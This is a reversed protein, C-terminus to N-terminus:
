WRLDVLGRALGVPQQAVLARGPVLLGGQVGVSAVVDRGIDFSVSVAGDVETGLMGGQPTWASLLGVAGSLHDGVARLRPHLYIADRIGNHTQLPEELHNVYPMVEEFLVLGAQHDPHLAYPRDGIRGMAAGANLEASFWRHAYLVSLVGGGGLGAGPEVAMQLDARVRHLSGRDVWARLEMPVTRVDGGDIQRWHVSTRLLAGETPADWGLVLRVAAAQEGRFLETWRDRVVLDADVEIFLHEVARETPPRWALRALVDGQWADGFLVPPPGWPDSMVGLDFGGALPHEFRALLHRPLVRALETTDSTSPRLQGFTARDGALLGNLAELEVIFTSADTPRYTMGARLRHRFWTRRGTVTGADDLVPDGAHEVRLSWQGFLDLRAPPQETMGGTLDELLVEAPDPEAALLTALLLIM